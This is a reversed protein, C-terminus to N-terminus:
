ISVECSTLLVVAMGENMVSASTISRRHVCGQAEACHEASCDACYSASPTLGGIEVRRLSGM